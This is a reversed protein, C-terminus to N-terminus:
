NGYKKPVELLHVLAQARSHAAHVSVHLVLHARTESPNELGIIFIALARTPCSM